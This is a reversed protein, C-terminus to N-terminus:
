YTNKETTPLRRCLFGTAPQAKWYLSVFVLGVEEKGIWGDM